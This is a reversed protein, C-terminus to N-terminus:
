VKQRNYLKDRTLHCRYFFLYVYLLIFVLFMNTLYRNKIKIQQNRERLILLHDVKGEKKPPQSRFRQGEKTKTKATPSAPSSGSKGGHEAHYRLVHPLTLTLSPTLPYPVTHEAPEHNAGIAGTLIGNLTPRTGGITVKIAKGKQIAREVKAKPLFHLIKSTRLTTM